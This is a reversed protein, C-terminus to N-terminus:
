FVAFNYFFNVKRIKIFVKNIVKKKIPNAKKQM